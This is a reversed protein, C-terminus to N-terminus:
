GLMLFAHKENKQLVNCRSEAARMKRCNSCNYPHMVFVNCRSEAVRMKRCYVAVYCVVHMIKGKYINDAAHVFSLPSLALNVYSVFFSLFIKRASHFAAFNM